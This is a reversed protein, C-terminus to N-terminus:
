KNELEFKQMFAILAKTGEVPMGNYMSARMGGVLRHGKLAILGASEAEKVFKADLEQSPTTFPVNVLSRDKKVVSNKYFASNDIFDYLMDSKLTNMEEMAAVGGCKKIWRLNLTAMFICFCPPTNYLSNNKAQTSYKMMTPCLPMEHGILDKRVIVVTLGAPAVNKQAGAYILGYDSVDAQQALISSSMDAVLVADTRPISDKKYATGFITNNSTIHIYDIDQRFRIESVDPIYTFNKDESTAQCVIDGYKVAQMYAKKSFNGTVVYDAKGKVLLNLPVAEFQLSAGGQLLLIEYNDPVAMLERILAICENHVADYAKSRHSIEMISVGTGAFDFMQQKAAELVEDSLASPGAAFNYVKM